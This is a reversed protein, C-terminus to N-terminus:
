LYLADEASGGHGRLRELDRQKKQRQLKSFALEECALDYKIKSLRAKAELIDIDEAGSSEEAMASTSRRPAFSGFEAKVPVKPSMVPSMAPSAVPSAAPSPPALQDSASPGAAIPAAPPARTTPVASTRQTGAPATRQMPPTGDGMLGELASAVIEATLQTAGSFLSERGFAEAAVDCARAFDRSTEGALLVLGEVLPTNSDLPQMVPSGPDTTRCPAYPLAMLAADTIRWVSKLTKIAHKRKAQSAPKLNEYRINRHRYAECQRKKKLPTNEAAPNQPAPRKQQTPQTVTRTERRAPREQQASPAQAGVQHIPRKQQALQAEAATQHAPRKQQTPQPEAAHQHTAGEQQTPQAGAVSQHATRKQQTSQAGAVSQHAVREQQAPQAEMFLSRAPRRESQSTLAGSYNNPTAHERNIRLTDQSLEQSMGLQSLSDVVSSRETLSQSQSDVFTSDDEDREKEIRDVEAQFRSATPAPRASRPASGVESTQARPRPQEARQSTSSSLSRDPFSARVQRNPPPADQHSTTPGKGKGSPQSQTTNQNPMTGALSGSPPVRIKVVMKDRQAESPGTASDSRKHEPGHERRPPQWTGTRRATPKSTSTPNPTLISRGLFSTGAQDM